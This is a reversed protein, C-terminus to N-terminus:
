KVGSLTNVSETFRKGREAYSKFQDFSATGPALLVVEGSEAEASAQAVANEITECTVCPVVDQWADKLAKSASGILYVKKVRKALSEKLFTLNKEKLLGGAILRIPGECMFLAAETASLSTAKSDDIYTVGKYAGVKQMRHALPEFTEFGAAIEADSLGFRQLIAVGMAAASALVPNDFYGGRPLQPCAAGFRRLVVHAPIFAKVDFDELVLAWDGPKQAQFLKRKLDGYVDMTGHRDLHDAQLNLICAVEPAFTETHEMQFSSVEVVAVANLMNRDQERELVRQCLPTGYNGATFAPIGCRNLTDCCFKVLSSKGKSGTIAIARGGRPAAERWAWWGFELESVIKFGRTAAETLWVHEMPIAPSVICLGDRVDPFAVDGDLVVAQGGRAEVLEQAARGSKGAGLVVVPAKAWELDM